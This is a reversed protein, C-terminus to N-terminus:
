TPILSVRAKLYYIRKKNPFILMFPHLVTQEDITEEIENKIHVGVLSQMDKHKGDGQHKYALL